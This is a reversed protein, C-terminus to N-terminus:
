QVPLPKRRPRLTNVAIQKTQGQDVWSVTIKIESLKVSSLVSDGVQTPYPQSQVSWDYGASRGDANWGENSVSDGANLLSNALFIAAQQRSSEGAARAGNGAAKYIMGLAIAMIVFAVLLELLSLGRQGIAPGYAKRKM